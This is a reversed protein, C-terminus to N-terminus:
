AEVGEMQPHLHNWVARLTRRARWRHGHLAEFVAHEMESVTAWPLLSGPRILPESRASHNLSAGVLQRRGCVVGWLGRAWALRGPRPAIWPLLLPLTILLVLALLWEFIVRPASAFPIRPATTILFGPQLPVAAGTRSPILFGPAAIAERLALRASVATGPMVVADSVQVGEGLIASHGIVANPGLSARGGIYAESGILVPPKIEVQKGVRAGRGLWFGPSLERGHIHLERPSATLLSHNVEILEAATRVPWVLAGERLEGAKLCLDILGRAFRPRSDAAAMELDQPRLLALGTWIPTEDTYEVFALPGDDPDRSEILAPDLVFVGPVDVLLIWRADLQLSRLFRYPPQHAQISHIRVTSGLGLGDGFLSRCTAATGATVIDIRSPRHTATQEALHQIVPRDLVPWRWTEEWPPEVGAALIVAQLAKM